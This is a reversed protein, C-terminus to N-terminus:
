YFFFRHVQSFPLKDFYLLVRRLFLGLASSKTVQGIATGILRGASGIMDLLAGVGDQLLEKVQEFFKEHLIPSIKYELTFYILM